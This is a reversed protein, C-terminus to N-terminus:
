SALLLHIFVMNLPSPLLRTDSLNNATLEVTSRAYTIYRLM